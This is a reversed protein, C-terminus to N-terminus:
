AGRRAIAGDVDGGAAISGDVACVGPGSGGPHPGVVAGPADSARVNRVSGGAAISGGEARVRQAPSSVSAVGPSAVPTSRRLQGLAVGLAAVSAVSGVVGWAQSSRGLDAVSLWVLLGVAAGAGVAALGWWSVRQWLVM